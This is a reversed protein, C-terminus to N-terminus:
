ASLIELLKDLDISGGTVVCVCKGRESKPMQLAAAVSLAASPEVVIRNGLVLQKMARKVDDDSVLFTEDVIERLVSFVEPTIYPVAVGDCITRCEVASAQGLRISEHLSACDRPEVSVIKTAPRLAKVASAVGGILGGGGVPVFITDVDPCDALIELGITGHGIMVQRNTWPHIFAFPEQEWQHERLFRFVNEIPVLIPDGGYRRVADIKTKPAHAPMMSRATVGFHRATWALAQATNGASVTSLGKAREDPHLNAVANFVGRIKFSTVPQHIELKLLVDDTHDYNHLPVLPTPNLIPRLTEAAQRIEPLTPPNMMTRDLEM